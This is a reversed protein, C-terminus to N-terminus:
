KKQKDISVKKPNFMIGKRDLLQQLKDQVEVYNKMVNNKSNMLNRARLAILGHVAEDTRFCKIQRFGNKLQANFSEIFNSTYISKRIEEPLDYYGFLNDGWRNIMDYFKDFCDEAITLELSEYLLDKAEKITNQKPVEILKEIIEDKYESEINRFVNRLFHVYCRIFIIGPMKNEVVNDLGSLGDASFTLCKNVGREHIRNIMIEYNKAGESDFIEWDLVERRGDITIGIFIIVCIDNNNDQNREINFVLFHTGDAYMSVINSPLPRTHYYEVLKKLEPKVWNAVTQPTRQLNYTNKLILATNNISLNHSYLDVVTERFTIHGRKYKDFFGHEFKGRRTRPVILNLCFGLIILTRPYSGNKGLTANGEEKLFNEFKIQLARNFLDTLMRTILNVLNEVTIPMNALEEAYVKM